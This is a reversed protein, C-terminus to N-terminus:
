SLVPCWWDQAMPDGLDSALPAGQALTIRTWLDSKPDFKTAGFLSLKARLMDIPLCGGGILNDQIESYPHDQAIQLREVAMLHQPHRLLFADMPESKEPLDKALAAVRRAIDLPSERDAGPEEHRSGLRPELKEESVYWFKACDQPAAYDPHLAWSFQAKIFTSLTATSTFPRGQGGFPDTMCDALGDILDGFPELMLSLLLEQLEPTQDAAKVWLADLPTDGSLTDQTINQRFAAFDTRLADIRAQHQPDPVNWQDLHDQARAALEKLTGAETKSVSRIARVRALATERVMMWNNLLIPHTVLFPAMGLGTANGIGLHRKLRPAIAAGGVHEVLDHTFNRILWVTLMEVMFSVELGPRSAFRARDSIGFKGNGYVATTRMLYGIDNIMEADPQDGKRLAEVVHTWLRVSKNARSLVLDRETYRGAEQLPAAACIRDLEDTDPVGDYLVFAADWATAIVRDSRNEPALPQSLAVLSYTHGHFDLTYVARGYGDADIEWLGCKPPTGHSSLRRTLIRLFSLRTAFMSGLRSLRMVQSAPRLPVQAPAIFDKM